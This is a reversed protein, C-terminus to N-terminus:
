SCAPQSGVEDRLTLLHLFAFLVFMM